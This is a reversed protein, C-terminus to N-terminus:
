LSPPLSLVLEQASATPRRHGPPQLFTAPPSWDPKGRMCFCIARIAFNQHRVQASATPRCRRPPPLFTAPPAISSSIWRGLNSQPKRQGGYATTRRACTVRYPFYCGHACHKSSRSDCDVLIDLSGPYKATEEAWRECNDAKGVHGQMRSSSVRMQWGFDGVHLLIVCRLKVLSDLSGFHKTTEEAWVTWRM